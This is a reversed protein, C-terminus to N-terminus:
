FVKGGFFERKAISTMGVAAFFEGAGDTATNIPFEIKIHNCGRKSLMTKGAELLRRGIGKRREQEAVAIFHLTSTFPNVCCVGIILDAKRAIICYDMLEASSFYFDDVAMLEDEATVQPLGCEQARAYEEDMTTAFISKLFEGVKGQDSFQAVEIAVDGAM